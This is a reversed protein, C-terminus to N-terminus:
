FTHIRLTEFTDKSSVIAIKSQDTLSEFRTIITSQGDAELEQNPLLHIKPHEQWFKQVAPLTLAFFGLQIMYEAQCQSCRANLVPMDRTYWGNQSICSIHLSITHSCSLCPFTRTAPHSGLFTHTWSLVSTIARRYGKVAGITAPFDSTNTAFAVVNPGSDGVLTCGPCFVQLQGQHPLLRGLRCHQGCFPCWLRTKQWKTDTTNILYPAMEQSLQTSLVRQLTLKGRHLRMAATTPNIGLRAAVEALSSENVYREILLTRTEPPLLSLPFIVCVFFKRDM